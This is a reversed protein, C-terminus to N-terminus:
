VAAFGPMYSRMQVWGNLEYQYKLAGHLQPDTVIEEM